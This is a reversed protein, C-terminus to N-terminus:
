SCKGAPCSQIGAARSILLRTVQQLDRAQRHPPDAVSAPRRGARSDAPGPWAAKASKKTEWDERTRGQSWSGGCARPLPTPGSLRGHSSTLAPPKFLRPLGLDLHRCPRPRCLSLHVM